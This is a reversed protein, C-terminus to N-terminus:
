SSLRSDLGQPGAPVLHARARELAAIWTRTTCARLEKRASDDLPLDGFGRHHVELLAGGARPGLGLVCSTRVPWDPRGLGLEIADRDVRQVDQVELGGHELVAFPTGPLLGSCDVPLWWTHSARDLLSRARALPVPLAISADVDERWGYRSWKGTELFRSLRGLFDAWGTALGLSERRSRDPDEDRVAVECWLEDLAEVTWTIRNEPGIGLFRWAYELLTPPDVHRPELDFFDGDGFDLRAARGPELESSLTGFWREVQPPESIALWADRRSVPLRLKLEVAHFPPDVRVSLDRYAATVSM